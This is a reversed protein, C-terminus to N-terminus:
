INLIPGTILKTLPDALQEKTNIYLIRIKNNEVLERIYHYKIDIHKTRKHFEANHSLKIAGTNDELIVPINIPIQLQLSNNLKYIINQLYVTEKSCETITIYEAETSLLTVSKQLTVGWSILNNSLTTLYGTTSRRSNLCNRWDSDSYAKIILNHNNVRTYTIRLNPYKNLYSFINNVAQFHLIRPNSCYRVCYQVTFTINPRTKLALYLLSGIYQQYITIEEQLAKQNNGQLKNAPLPNNKLYLNNKNYKELINRTYNNQHM